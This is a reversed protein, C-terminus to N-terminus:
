KQTAAANKGAAARPYPVIELGELGVAKTFENLKAFIEDPSATPNKQKFDKWLENWEYENHIWRHEDASLAVTYDDINVGRSKFWGRLQQV